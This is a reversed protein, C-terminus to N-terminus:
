LQERPMLVFLRGRSRQTGALQEARAGRGFFIDARPGGRIAGGTDQAVMLREYASGDPLTTSLWVLSGLPIVSPDVAISREATLSVGLTGLPGDGSAAGRSQFFVYSPNEDLLAHAYEPHRELWDRISFLSVTELPLEGRDVLVRGISVYPHGNQDSYGIAELRGDPLAVIGSGQVQLFFADVQDDVWLLEQGSLPAAEGDIEARTWYPLVRQGELRGRVRNGELAPYRSALDLTVLDDPRRYLPWHFRESPEVDGQLLPEYYGTILGERAGREGFVPRADYGSAIAALLEASTTSRAALACLAPDGAPSAVACQKAVADLLGDGADDDLGTVRDISVADGIHPEPPAFQACGVLALCGLVSAVLRYTM